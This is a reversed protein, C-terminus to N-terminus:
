QGARGRGPRAVVNLTGNMMRWHGPFTCVYPYQGPQVPARFQFTMSQNPDLLRTAYV